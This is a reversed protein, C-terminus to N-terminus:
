ASTMLHFHTQLWTRCNPAIEAPLDALRSRLQHLDPLEDVDQTEPLHHLRLGHKQIADLTRQATEPTSMPIPLLLEPRPQNVAMVYWGGDACTGFSVDAGTDLATFTDALDQPRALPTDSSFVAANRYGLAFCARLANDLREGLSPGQQLILRFDPALQRFYDTAEAPLYAIGVDVGPALAHTRRLLALCDNLLCEAFAAAADMGVTRGLRTKAQGAVPAKVVLLIISDRNM